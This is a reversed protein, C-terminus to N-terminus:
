SCTYWISYNKWNRIKCTSDFRCFIKLIYSDIEVNFIYIYINNTGFGCRGLPIAKLQIPSPRQFGAAILGDLVDQQLGMQFFIVDEQIKVDKTRQKKNLDHAIYQTM